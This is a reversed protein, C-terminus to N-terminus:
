NKLKELRILLIGAQLVLAVQLWSSLCLGQAKHDRGKHDKEQRKWFPYTEKANSPTISQSRNGASPSCLPGTSLLPLLLLFSFQDSCCSHPWPMSLQSPNQETPQFFSSTFSLSRSVQFLQSALMWVVLADRWPFHFAASLPPSISVDCLEGFLLFFTPEWSQRNVLSRGSKEDRVPEQSLWFCAQLSTPHLPSSVPVHFLLPFVLSVRRLAPARASSCGRTSDLEQSDADRFSWELQCTVANIIYPSWQVNEVLSSASLHPILAVHM